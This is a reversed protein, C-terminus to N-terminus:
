CERCGMVHPRTLPTLLTDSLTQESGWGVWEWVCVCMRVFACVCLRMLTCVHLCVAICLLQVKWVQVFMCVHHVNCMVSVKICRFDHLQLRHQSNHILMHMCICVCASACNWERLVNKWLDYVCVCKLLRRERVCELFCAILGRLLPWM